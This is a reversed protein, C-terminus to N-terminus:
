GQCAGSAMGSARWPWRHHRENPVSSKTRPHVRHSCEQAVTLSSFGQGQRSFGSTGAQIYIPTSLRSRTGSLASMLTDIVCTIWSSASKTIIKRPRYKIVQNKQYVRDVIDLIPDRFFADRSKMWFRMILIVQSLHLLSSSSSLVNTINIVDIFERM